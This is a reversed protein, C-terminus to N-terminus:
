NGTLNSSGMEIVTTNVGTNADTFLSYQCAILKDICIKVESNVRLRKRNRCHNPHSKRSM